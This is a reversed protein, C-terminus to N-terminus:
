RSLRSSVLRNLSVKEEAAEIALARHLEPPIRLKFEGSYTRDALPTPVREGSSELDAVVDATLNRIGLLADVQVAALWSLSPFEAVLGVFESDEASWTVRYTYHDVNNM